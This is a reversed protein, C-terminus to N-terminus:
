YDKIKKIFVKTTVHYSSCTKYFLKWFKFLNREPDIHMFVNYLPHSSCHLCYKHWTFNVTHRKNRAGEFVNEKNLCGVSYNRFLQLLNMWWHCRVYVVIQKAIGKVSNESFIFCLLVRKKTFNLHKRFYCDEHGKKIM